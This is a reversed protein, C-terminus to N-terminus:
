RLQVLPVTIGFCHLTNSGCSMNGTSSYHSDAHHSCRCLHSQCGGCCIGTCGSYGFSNCSKSARQNGSQSAPHQPSPQAGFCTVPEHIGPTFIVSNGAWCIYRRTHAMVNNM